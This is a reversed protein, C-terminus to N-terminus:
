PNGLELMHLEHSVREIPDEDDRVQLIVDRGALAYSRSTSPGGQGGQGGGLLDRTRGSTEVVGAGGSMRILEPGDEGVMYSKGPLVPGGTARGEMRDRARISANYIIPGGMSRALDDLDRLAARAAETRAWVEINVNDPVNRVDGALERFERATRDAEAQTIHGQAVWNQLTAVAADVDVDGKRVAEALALQKQELDYASRVTERNAEDLDEQASTLNAAAEAAEDSAPGHAKIATNLAAQAALLELEAVTVAQQAEALKRTADEAAFLPDFMASLEAALEGLASTLEEMDGAADEGADGLGEVAETGDAARPTLDTLSSAIGDISEATVEGDAAMRREAEAADRLIGDLESTDEGLAALADRLRKATGISGEALERFTDLARGHDLGEVAQFAEVLEETTTRAAADIDVSVERAAKAMDYLQYAVAAIALGGLVKGFTGIKGAAGYAGTAARDFGRGLTQLNQAVRGGISLIPGIGAVLAAVAIAANQVPDPLKSFHEAATGIGSAVAAVFPAIADGADILAAQLRALAQQMKFGSTNAAAEFAEDTMGVSDTVTGFTGALTDADADLIQFAASAAESSGLIRGLQERNGGLKGDLDQLAAVLGDQAIIDRFAQTSGYLADLETKAEQTPTVFSRMMAAVQTGSETANNNVRTLLAIAGGVDELSAGAQKAFPTIKGLVGALQSSEFNGARATAVLIDTARAADLVEPGYANVAGTLAQAITNTEGLGAASAKAAADLVGLAEAGRFGASTVTFLADALEQPGKATEGSLAMVGSRLEEVEGTSVGVLGVIRSMSTEFDMGMKVAAGGAAVLPLTVAATMKDGIQTARQAGTSMMRDLNREFPNGDLDLDASLTGVKVTM